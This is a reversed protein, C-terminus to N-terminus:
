KLGEEVLVEFFIGGCKKCPSPSEKPEDFSFATNCTSCLWGKSVMADGDRLIEDPLRGMFRIVDHENM